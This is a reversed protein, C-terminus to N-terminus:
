DSGDNEGGNSEAARNGSTETSEAFTINTETFWLFNFSRIRISVEDGVQYETDNDADIQAEARGYDGLYEVTVGKEGLETIVANIVRANDDAAKQATRLPIAVALCIMLAIVGSLLDGAERYM